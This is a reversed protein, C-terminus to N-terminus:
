ISILTKLGGSLREPPIPGLVESKILQGGVYESKDIRWGRRNGYLCFWGSPRKRM